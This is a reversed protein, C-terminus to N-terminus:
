LHGPFIRKICTWVLELHKQILLTLNEERGFRRKDEVISSTLCPNASSRLYSSYYEIEFPGIFTNLKVFVINYPRNKSKAGEQYGFIKKELVLYIRLTQM